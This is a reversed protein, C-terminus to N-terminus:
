MYILEDTKRKLMIFSTTQLLLMAMIIIM